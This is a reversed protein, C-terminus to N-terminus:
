CVFVSVSVEEGMKIGGRGREETQSIEIHQARHETIPKSFQKDKAGM